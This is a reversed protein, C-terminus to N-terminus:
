KPRFAEVALLFWRNFLDFDHLDTVAADALLDGKLFRQVAPSFAAERARDAIDGLLAHFNLEWREHMRDALYGYHFARADFRLSLGPDAFVDLVYTEEKGLRAKGRLIEDRALIAEQAFSGYSVGLTAAIGGLLHGIGRRPAVGRSVIKPERYLALSGARVTNWPALRWEAGVQVRVGGQTCEARRVLIRRKYRTAAETPAVGADIGLRKVADALAKAADASAEDLLIGEIRKLRQLADFRAMGTVKALADALAGVHEGPVEPQRLVVACSM